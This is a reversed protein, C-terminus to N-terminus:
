SKPKAFIKCTVIAGLIGFITPILVFITGILFGIIFAPIAVIYGWIRLCTGLRERQKRRIFITGAVILGLGIYVLGIMAVIFAIIMVFPLSLSILVGIFAM